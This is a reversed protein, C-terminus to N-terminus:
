IYNELKNSIYNINSYIIVVFILSVLFWFAGLLPERGILIIIKLVNILIDKVSTIPYIIKNGYQVTSSYFGLYFFMNRLLYFCLEYKLYYLYLPMIRKKLVDILEKLSGINKNKFLYGSIFIFLPMFFLGSFHEISWTNFNDCHGCVVLIIAIARAIDIHKERKM